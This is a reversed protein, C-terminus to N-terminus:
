REYLFYNNNIILNALNELAEDALKSQETDKLLSYQFIVFILDRFTVNMFKDPLKLINLIKMITYNNCSRDADRDVFDTLPCNM